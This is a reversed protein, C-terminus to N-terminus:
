AAASGSHPRFHQTAEGERRVELPATEGEQAQAEEGYRLDEGIQDEKADQCDQGRWARRPWPVQDGTGTQDDEQNARSSVSRASEAGARVSPAARCPARHEIPQGWSPGSVPKSASSPLIHVRRRATGSTHCCTTVAQGIIQGEVTGCKEGGAIGDPRLDEAPGGKPAGSKNPQGLWRRVPKETSGASSKIGRVPRIPPAM